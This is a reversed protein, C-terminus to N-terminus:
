RVSLAERWIREVQDRTEDRSGRNDIVHAALERKEEIPM